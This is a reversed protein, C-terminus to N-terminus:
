FRDNTLRNRRIKNKATFPRKQKHDLEIDLSKDTIKIERNQQRSHLNREPKKITPQNDYLSIIFPLKDQLQLGKSEKENLM